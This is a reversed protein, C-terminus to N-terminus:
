SCTLNRNSSNCKNSQSTITQADLVLNDDNVATYSNIFKCLATLNVYKCRKISTRNGALVGCVSKTTSSNCVQSVPKSFFYISTIQFFLYM